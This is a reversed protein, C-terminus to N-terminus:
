RGGKKRRRRRPTFNDRHERDYKRGDEIIEKGRRDVCYNCESPIRSHRRHELGNDYHECRTCKAVAEADRREQRKRARQGGLFVVVMLGIFIYGFTAMM